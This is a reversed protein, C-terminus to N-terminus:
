SAGAKGHSKVLSDRLVHKRVKGSATLPFQAVFRWTRPVKFPALRSRAFSELMDPGASSGPALRVFAAVTEGLRDDPVGIVAVDAVAPHELIAEEVERPYINEGGRIIVERSRGHIRLV